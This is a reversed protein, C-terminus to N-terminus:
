YSQAVMNEDCTNTKTLTANIKENAQIKHM